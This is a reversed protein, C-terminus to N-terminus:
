TVIKVKVMQVVGKKGKDVRIEVKTGATLASVDARQRKAGRRDVIKVVNMPYTLATGDKLTIVLNDANTAATDIVGQVKNHQRREKAQARVQRARPAEAAFLSPTSAVGIVSIAFLMTLLKKRNIMLMGGVSTLTALLIETWTDFLPVAPNFVAGTEVSGMDVAAGVLRPLGRQDVAPPPTYAPDGADIVPSGPLPMHTLTPGGNDALPGLQPDQGFINGGNDNITADAKIKKTTISGNDDELLTYTLNFTGDGEIDNYFGGTNNGVISNDLNVTADYATIGGGAAATNGTITTFSINVAGGVYYAYIGGGRNSATNGSITSNVINVDDSVGYLYIGGGDDTATNGSITSSDVNIDGGSTDYAYIGGGDGGATNGSITSRLITLDFSPQYIYIGGGDSRATNNQIVTDQIVSPASSTAFFIGGGDSGANGSITSNSIQLVGGDATSGPM